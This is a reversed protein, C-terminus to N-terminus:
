DCSACLFPCFYIFLMPASPPPLLPTLPYTCPLQLYPSHSPSVSSMVTAECLSSSINEFFCFVFFLKALGSLCCVLHCHALCFLVLSDTSVPVLCASVSLTPSFITVHNVRDGIFRVLHTATLHLSGTNESQTRKDDGAFPFSM